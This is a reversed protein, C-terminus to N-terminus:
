RVGTRAQQSTALDKLPAIADRAEDTARVQQHLQERLAAGEALAKQISGKASAIGAATLDHELYLRLDTLTRVFRGSAQDAAGHGEALKRYNAQLATRRAEASQKLDADTILAADENWGGFFTAARGDMKGYTKRSHAARAELNALERKFTEFTELNSRPSDGPNDSLARLAETTLGVQEGQSREILTEVDDLTRAHQM